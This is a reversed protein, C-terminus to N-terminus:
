VHAPVAHGCLHWLHLLSAPGITTIYPVATDMYNPPLAIGPPAPLTFHEWHAHGTRIMESGIWRMVAPRPAQNHHQARWYKQTFSFVRTERATEVDEGLVQVAGELAAVDNELDQNLDQLVANSVTQMRLESQLDALNVTGETFLRDLAEMCFRVFPLFRRGSPKNAEIIVLWYIGRRNAWRQTRENHVWTGPCVGILYPPDASNGDLGSPSSQSYKVWPPFLAALKRFRDKRTTNSWHTFVQGAIVSFNAYVENGMKVVPISIGQWTIETESVSALHSERALQGLEQVTMTAMDFRLKCVNLEASRTESLTLFM